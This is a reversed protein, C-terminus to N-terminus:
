ERIKAQPLKPAPPQVPHVNVQRARIRGGMAHVIEMRLETSAVREEESADALRDIATTLKENVSVMDKHQQELMRMTADRDRQWMHFVAFLVAGAFGFRILSDGKRQGATLAGVVTAIPNSSRTNM